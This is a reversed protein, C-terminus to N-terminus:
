NVVTYKTPDVELILLLSVRGFNMSHKDHLM